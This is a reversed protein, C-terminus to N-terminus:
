SIASAPLGASPRWDSGCGNWNTPYRGEIALGKAGEETLARVAWIVFLIDVEVGRRAQAYAFTLPTLMKDFGDDRVVIALHKMSITKRETWLSTGRGYGRPPAASLASHGHIPPIPGVIWPRVDARTSRFAARVNFCSPGTAIVLGHPRLM